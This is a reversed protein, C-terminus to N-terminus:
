FLFSICVNIVVYIGLFIFQNFQIKNLYASIDFQKSPIFGIDYIETKVINLYLNRYRGIHKNKLTCINM